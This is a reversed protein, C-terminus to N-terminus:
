DVVTAGTNVGIGFQEVHRRLVSGDEFGCLDLVTNTRSSDPQTLSMETVPDIRLRRWCTPRKGEYESRDSIAGVSDALERSINRCQM